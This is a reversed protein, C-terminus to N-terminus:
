FGQIAIVSSKHYPAKNKKDPVHVSLFYTKADPTFFDGSTESGKPGVAFRKLDKLTPNVISLDIFYVENYVENHALAKAGVRNKDIGILDESIVLYDKGKIKVATLADPNSFCFNVDANDFGGNIYPKIENTTLDLVLVRGYPDSFENGTVRCQKDLYNPITAGMKIQKTLDFKDNGTETIYVKNGVIEVWEQRVFCSAGMRLAVDRINVLSDMVMPLSIWKGVKGDKSQQYAYLQGKDYQNPVDAVFKFFVAPTYDDTLFVTKNDPMFAVDEHQFRGMSYLKRLAKGSKPDVEVMWGINEFRKRGNYNSTDRIQDRVYVQLNSQPETEEATLITGYPTVAGGCNRSTNGVTSFDIARPKGIKKWKGNEKKIELVAGGGGDGLVSNTDHTEHSVYLYGHENSKKIPIYQIMDHHGKAPVLKGNPAIVTDDEHFVIDFSFKEPLIPVETDFNYAIPKFIEVDNKQSSANNCAFLLIISACFIFQKLM